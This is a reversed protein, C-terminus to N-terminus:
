DTYLPLGFFYLMAFYQLWYELKSYVTDDNNIHGCNCLSNATKLFYM